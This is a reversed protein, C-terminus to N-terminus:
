ILGSALGSVPRCILSCNLEYFPVRRIILESLIVREKILNGLIVRGIILMSFIVRRIILECLCDSHFAGRGPSFRGRSTDPLLVPYDNMGRFILHVVQTSTQHICAGHLVLFFFDLCGHTATAPHVM